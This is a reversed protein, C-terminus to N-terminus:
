GECGGRVPARVAAQAERVDHMLVIGSGVLGVVLLMVSVSHKM